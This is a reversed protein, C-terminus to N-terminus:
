AVPQLRTAGSKGQATVWLKIRTPATLSGRGVGSLSLGLMTAVKRLINAAGNCDANIYWNQATRFLGRKARKGSSKWSDPKEGFTPLFDGDVSVCTLWNNLGSDIGLVWMPDVDIQIPNLRYVFETYFCGNRPLIRLEKIDELKLNSPMPITFSDIQFWM